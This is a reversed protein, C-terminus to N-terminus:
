ALAELDFVQQSLREENTNDAVREWLTGPTSHRIPRELHALAAEGVAAVASPEVILTGFRSLFPATM